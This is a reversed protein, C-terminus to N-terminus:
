ARRDDLRVVNAAPTSGCFAAWAAMMPRRKDLADGRRYAQEARDGIVHALAHEALERPFHTENGSWDRFSSRFGHVTVDVGMRRLLMEMAMVSLPRGRRQGPFVLASVRLPLLKALISLAPDSLPVRHERAAKMREAPITWVKADLDIEDWRGGLVEGSRAATLIAFELALAAIAERERLRVLFAPVEAYPLAAHHGRSLKSQKPLLNDLHGRWAAPNEGMRFGKARAANLVREIRGRVRSATEPKELWIPKLVALVDATEIKDVPKSRLPEAYVTLTMAWQAKHKENRFGKSQEAVVEDALEASRRSGEIASVTLM